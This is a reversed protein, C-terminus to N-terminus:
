RYEFYKLDILGLRFCSLVKVSKAYGSVSILTGESGGECLQLSM